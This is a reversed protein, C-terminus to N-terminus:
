IPERLDAKSSDRLSNGFQAKILSEPHPLCAIYNGVLKAQLVKLNPHIGRTRSALIDEHEKDVGLFVIRM